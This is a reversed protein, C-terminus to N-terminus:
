PSRAAVAARRRGAGPLLRRMAGLPGPEHRWRRGLPRSKRRGADLNFSAGKRMPSFEIATMALKEMEQQVFTFRWVEYLFWNMYDQTGTKTGSDPWGTREFPDLRLNTISPVDPKTM